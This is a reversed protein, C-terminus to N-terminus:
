VLWRGVHEATKDLEFYWAGRRDGRDYDAIYTWYVRTGRVATVTCRARDHGGAPNLFRSHEFRDGPKPRATREAQQAAEILSCPAAGGAALHFSGNGIGGSVQEIKV